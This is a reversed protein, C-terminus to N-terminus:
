LIKMKGSESKEEIRGCEIGGMVIAEPATLQTLRTEESAAPSTSMAREAGWVKNYCM